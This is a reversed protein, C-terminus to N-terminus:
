NLQELYSDLIEKYNEKTVKLHRNKNVLMAPAGDCVGLCPVGELSFPVSDTKKSLDDIYERIAAMAPDAGKICCTINDCFLIRFAKPKDTLYMSYFTVVEKVHVKSLSFDAELASIHEAKIYGYHDQILHLIPLIASRKTEYRKLYHRIKEEVESSFVSM